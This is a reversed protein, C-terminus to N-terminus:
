SWRYTEWVRGLNKYSWLTNALLLKSSYYHQLYNVAQWHAWFTLFFISYSFNLKSIRSFPCLNGLHATLGHGSVENGRVWQHWRGVKLLPFTPPFFFSFPGQPRWYSPITGKKVALIHVLLLCPVKTRVGLCNHLYIHMIISSSMIGLVEKEFSCARILQFTAMVGAPGVGPSKRM